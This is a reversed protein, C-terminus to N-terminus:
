VRLDSADGTLVAARAWWGPHAAAINLAAAAAASEDAFLGFCTAGSGTMRALLVGPSEEIAALAEGITPELARAAETLGNNRAALLAALAAADPPAETFRDPAAFAGKLSEFVAKTAVPRGPNVLALWAEPLPPAAQLDGGIGGMYAAKGGLCVPVDAGLRLALALFDDEGPAVGWLSSLGRLAAAADASGGGLGASVPLRKVLDIRARAKVGATEALLAAAELVINGPGSPIAGAFRGEIHLELGDGPGIVLRDQIGAFAVLSDLLHYGDPRRGTVHLTLNIKAAASVVLTGPRPPESGV